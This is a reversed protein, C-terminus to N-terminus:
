APPYVKHAKLYVELDIHKWCKEPKVHDTFLVGNMHDIEHQVVHSFFGSAKKRALEGTLTQYEITIRDPRYVKAFLQSDGVGVSACAEWYGSTKENQSTIKPNIITLVKGSATNFCTALRIPIGVQVASMGVTRVGDKEIRSLKDLANTLVNLEPIFDTITESNTRLLQDPEQRIKLQLQPLSFRGLNNIAKVYEQKM